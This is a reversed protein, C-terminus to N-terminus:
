KPSKSRSLASTPALHKRSHAGPLVEPEDAGERLLFGTESALNSYRDVQGSPWRVTVRTASSADGLGILLRPDHASGYSTGGKRERVITRGAAEVEVRAGVADRNSRTGVLSLRVWHNSTKTDNRLLVHVFDVGAEKAIETFRFPSPPQGLTMNARPPIM